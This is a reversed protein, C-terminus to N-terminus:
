RTRISTRIWKVFQEFSHRLMQAATAIHPRLYPQLSKATYSLSVSVVWEVVAQVVVKVIPNDDSM